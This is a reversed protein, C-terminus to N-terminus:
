IVEEYRPVFDRQHPCGGYQGRSCNCNHCLITIDEPFGEAIIIRLLKTGSIRRGNPYRHRKSAEPTVHEITLFHIDGEDCCTCKGGYANVVERKVREHSRRASESNLQRSREPNEERWKRSQDAHISPNKNQKRKWHKRWCSKCWKGRNSRQPYKVDRNFQDHPKKKKCRSCELTM